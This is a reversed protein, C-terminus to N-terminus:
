PLISRGIPDPLLCSTMTGHIIQYREPGEKILVRGTFLFPNSTTYMTKRNSAAAQPPRGISGTVNYFRGTDLEFNMKGHDALILENNRKGQLRVHGDAEADKTEDDYSVKDASLIYDKYDIRVDGTLTYVSGHKEQQKSELRAVVGSPLAAVVEAVPYDPADPLSSPDFTRPFEKNSTQPRLPLHCLVFVTILLSTRLKM